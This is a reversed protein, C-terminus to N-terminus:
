IHEWNDSRCSFSDKIKEFGMKNKKSEDVSEQFVLMFTRRGCYFSYIEGRSKVGLIKAQYTALSCPIGNFVSDVPEEFQVTATKMLVNKEFEKRYLQIYNDLEIMGNLWSVMFIGSSGFGKRQCSVHYGSDQMNKKDIIKWGEPSVFSVGDKEFLTEPLKRTCGFLSCIIFILLHIRKM